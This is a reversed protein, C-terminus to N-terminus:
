VPPNAPRLLLRAHLKADKGIAGLWNWGLGADGRAVTAAGRLRLSGDAGHEVEVPIEMAVQHAGVTLEGRVVLGGEGAAVATTRFVVQPHREVDFFDASRLHRDRRANGTDLSAAEITLHGETGAGADADAVRLRGDWTRFVGTVTQLGWMTKVAFGVESHEPDVSWAGAPVPRKLDQITSM